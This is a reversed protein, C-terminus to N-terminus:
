LGFVAAFVTTLTSVGTTVATVNADAQAHAAVAGGVAVTAVAAKKMWNKMGDKREREGVPESVSPNDTGAIPFDGSRKLASNMKLRAEWGAAARRAPLCWMSSECNATIGCGS